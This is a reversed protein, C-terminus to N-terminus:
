YQWGAVHNPYEMGAAGGGGLLGAAPYVRLDTGQSFVVYISDTNSFRHDVRGGINYRNDPAYQNGFWNNTVLNNDTTTPDPTMGFFYATDVNLRNSPIINGIFPTRAGKATTSLPDYLVQLRGQADKMQSFDGQKEAVTPVTYGAVAAQRLHMAEYGFFWFTRNRGNYLKPIYVPGGASIGYENRNYPPPTTFTDTRNRAVGIASNKNTEFATGHLQSTGSKTTAIISTPVSLRASVAYSDVTLEQISDLAAGSWPPDGYHRDVMSIGDVLYDTSGGAAGFGVGPITNVIASMSRGNIPLAQIRQRDLRLQVPSHDIEVMPTVAAVEVTTTVQGPELMPDIVVSQAVQVPFSTVFKAM